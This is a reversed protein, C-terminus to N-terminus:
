KRKAPRHKSTVERPKENLGMADKLTKKFGKEWAHYAQSKKPHPNQPMSLGAFAKSGEAEVDKLAASLHQKPATIATRFINKVREEDDFSKDVVMARPDAEDAQDEMGRMDLDSDGQEGSDGGELDAVRAELDDVRSEVDGGEGMDGTIHSALDDASMSDADVEMEPEPGAQMPKADFHEEDETSGGKAHAEDWLAARLTKPPYPNTKGGVRVAQRLFNNQKRSSREENEVGKAMDFAQELGSEEDECGAVMSALQEDERAQAITGGVHKTVKDHARSVQYSQWLAKTINQKTVEADGGLMDIALDNDLIDFALDEFERRKLLNVGSEKAMDMMTQLWQTYHQPTIAFDEEAGEVISTVSDAGLVRQVHQVFTAEDGLKNITEAERIMKFQM